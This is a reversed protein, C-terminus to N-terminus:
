NSSKEFIPQDSLEFPQTLVKSWIPSKWGTEAKQAAKQWAPYDILDIQCRAYGPAFQSHPLQRITRESILLIESQAIQAVKEYSDLVLEPSDMLFREPYIQELVSTFNWDNCILFAMLDTKRIIPIVKKTGLFTYLAIELTNTYNRWSSELQAVPVSNVTMPTAYLSNNLHAKSATNLTQITDNLAKHTKEWTDKFTGETNIIIDAQSLKDAQPSQLNIRSKAKQETMGRSKGLREVQLDYAAHSVWVQDCYQALGAELLKIAEIAVVPTTAAEVRKHIAKIVPPHVLAELQQLRDPQQFVIEGLKQNSILQNETLILSGFTDIVPQYAPGGPYLMRHALLDADITLAGANALMRLIVSKGTAINGTIGIILPKVDEACM